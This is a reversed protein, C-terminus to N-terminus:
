KTVAPPEGPPRMVGKLVAAPKNTSVSSSASEVANTKAVIRMGGLVTRTPMEAVDGRLRVVDGTATPCTAKVPTNSVANQPEQLPVGATRMPGAQAGAALVGLGIAAIGAKTRADLFQRRNPYEPSKTTECKRVKM